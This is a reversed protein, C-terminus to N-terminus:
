PYAVSVKLPYSVVSALALEELQLHGPELALPEAAGPQTAPPQRANPVITQKRRGPLRAYADPGALVTGISPADSVEAGDITPQSQTPPAM